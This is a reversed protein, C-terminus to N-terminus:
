NWPESVGVLAATVLLRHDYYFRPVCTVLTIDYNGSDTIQLDDQYVIDTKYVEYLYKRKSSELVVYISEENALLSPIEPLRLFVNGEGHIPSELHGFYWGQGQQSPNATTPIHGVVWKPTEWQLSDEVFLIELEQVTSRIGIGFVSIKTAPLSNGDLDFHSPPYYAVTKESLVPDPPFLFVTQRTNEQLLSTAETAVQIKLNGSNAPESDDQKKVSNTEEVDPPKNDQEANSGTTKEFTPMELVSKLKTTLKEASENSTDLTRSTIAGLTGTSASANRSDNFNDRTIKGNNSLTTEPPKSVKSGLTRVTDNIKDKPPLITPAAKNMISSASQKRETESDQNSLVTEVTGGITSPRDKTHILDKLNSKTVAGYAYYIGSSTLLIIGIGILFIRALWGSRATKLVVPQKPFQL